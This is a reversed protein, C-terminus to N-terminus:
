HRGILSYAQCPPGGIILDLNKTNQKQLNSHVLNFINELSSDSIETNIVSDSLEQPLYSYLTNRSITGALYDNYINIRDSAKLYHYAVRTKITLCAEKDAEIHAVPQMGNRKFGEALASTGAFLDIYTLPKM